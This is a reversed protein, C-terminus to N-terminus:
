PLRFKIFKRILKWIGFIALFGIIFDLGFDGTPTKGDASYSNCSALLGGLENDENPYLYVVGDVDDQSLYDPKYNWGNPEYTMVSARDKSHTLGIAHGFEHIVTGEFAVLQTSSFMDSNMKIRASGNAKDQNTGGAILGAGLAACGIIVEGKPITASNVSTDSRGGVKVKLRSEPVDNWIEATREMASKLVADSIGAATCGESSIKFITDEPKSLRYNKDAIIFAQAESFVFFILIIFKFM